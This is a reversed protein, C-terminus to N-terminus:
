SMKFAHQLLMVSVDMWFAFPNSEFIFKASFPFCGQLMALFQVLALQQQSQLALYRYLKSKIEADFKVVKISSQYNQQSGM